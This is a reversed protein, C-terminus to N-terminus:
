SQPHTGGPFGTVSPAGPQNWAFLTLHWLGPRKRSPDILGRAGLGLLTERIKWSAPTRGAAVDNQWPASAADIDVGIAAMTTRDRLDAINTAAVDFSLIERSPSESDTHAIMAAAVGEPSASLYLTPTELPSFRGESRSGDLACERFTPDVARYFIGQVTSFPSNNERQVTPETENELGFTRRMRSLNAIGAPSADM